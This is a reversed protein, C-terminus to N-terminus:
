AGQRRALARAYRADWRAADTEISDVEPRGASLRSLLGPERVCRLLAASLAEPSDAEYLLGSVGDEILDVLGGIRAAVVPVEALFAEHVVLPSNELWLSPVVLVDLGVYARVADGPEFSGRFRVPLEQALQRLKRSYDPAVSLDGWVDLEWSGEPLRAAAELLVHVGKHWTPTGVFGVRLRSGPPDRPAAPLQPMGYDSVELRDAPAGLSRYEEALSPSPAVLIDFDDLARRAAALRREIQAASARTPVPRRLLRNLWGARGKTMRAAWPTESFCRACRSVDITRCVHNEAVHVRQGGSPCFLTYDHLTGVVAAGRERALRPLHLSLNLLNHVHLVDPEVGELVRVLAEELRPSSWSEDFNRFEWNNVLGIIEVGDYRRACAVGHSRATDYEACLVRLDHRPRQARCLAHAYLESGARHRPLYDHIAHLIRL